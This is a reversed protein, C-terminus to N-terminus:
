SAQKSEIEELDKKALAQQYQTRNNQAAKMMREFISSPIEKLDTIPPIMKKLTKWVNQLYEPDCEMLVNGLEEAQVETIPNEHVPEIVVMESEELKSYDNSKAIEKLEDMTYGAGKIIDPFLQRCLMSMARNYCMVTPYKGWPSADKFIGARKADDISFSISWTDGTDNRKGNLICKNDTSKSDKTVSHGAQRVLCAMQETSMGVKGQVYYLSGNLADIPDIGISKAKSVIAYVGEAGMKKYHPTEMLKDCLKKTNEVELFSKNIDVVALDQSM